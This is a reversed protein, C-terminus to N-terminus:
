LLLYMCMTNQDTEWKQTTIERTEKVVVRWRAFNDNNKDSKQSLDLKNFVLDYKKTLSWAREYDSQLRSLKSDYRLTHTNQM